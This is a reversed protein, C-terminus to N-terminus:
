AFCTEHEDPPVVGSSDHACSWPLRGTRLTDLLTHFDPM